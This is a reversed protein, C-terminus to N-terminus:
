IFLYFLVVKILGYVRRGKAADRMEGIVSLITSFIYEDITINSSEMIEFLNWAKDGQKNLHYIQLM